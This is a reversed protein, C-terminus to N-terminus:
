SKVSTPLSTLIAAVRAADFGSGDGRGVKRVSEEEESWKLRAPKRSNRVGVDGKGMEPRWRNGRGGEANKNEDKNFDGEKVVRQLVADGGGM